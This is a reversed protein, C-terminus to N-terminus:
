INDKLEQLLHPKKRMFMLTVDLYYDCANMDPPRPPLLGHTILWVDYVV